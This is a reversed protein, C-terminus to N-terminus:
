SAGAWLVHAMHGMQVTSGRRARGCPCPRARKPCTRSTAGRRPATEHRPTRALARAAVRPGDTTTRFVYIRSGDLQLPRPHQNPSYPDAQGINGVRPVAMMRV